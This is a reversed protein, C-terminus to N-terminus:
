SEYKLSLESVIVSARDILVGYDFRENMIVLLDIDSDPRADGRAHSGYLYIAAILDGPEWELQERFETLIKTIM